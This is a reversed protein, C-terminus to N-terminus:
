QALVEPGKRRWVVVWRSLELNLFYFGRVFLLLFCFFPQSLDYVNPKSIKSDIRGQIYIKVRKTLFTIQLFLNLSVMYICYSGFINLWRQKKHFESIRINLKEQSERTSRFFFIQKSFLDCIIDCWTIKGMSSNSTSNEHDVLSKLLRARTTLTTQKNSSQVKDSENRQRM